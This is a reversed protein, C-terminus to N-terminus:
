AALGRRTEKGCGPGVLMVAVTSPVLSASHVRSALSRRKLLTTPLIAPTLTNTSNTPEIYLQAFSNIKTILLNHSIKEDFIKLM